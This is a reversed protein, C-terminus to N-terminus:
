IDLKDSNFQFITGYADRSKVIILQKLKLRQISHRVTAVDVSLLKAVNTVSQPQRLFPILTEVEKPTLAHAQAFLLGDNLSELQLTTM